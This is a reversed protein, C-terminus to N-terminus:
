EFNLYLLISDCEGVGQSPDIVPANICLTLKSLLVWTPEATVPSTCGKLLMAQVGPYSPWM